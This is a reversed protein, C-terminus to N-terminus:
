LKRNDERTKMRGSKLIKKRKRGKMEATDRAYLARGWPSLTRAAETGSM